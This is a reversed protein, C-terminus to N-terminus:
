RYRYARWFQSVARVRRKNLVRQKKSCLVISPQICTNKYVNRKLAICNAIFGVAENDNCSLTRSFSNRGNSWLYRYEATNCQEIQRFIKLTIIYLYIQQEVM